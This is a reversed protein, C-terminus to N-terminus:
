TMNKFYGDLLLKFTIIKLSTPVKNLYFLTQSKEINKPYKNKRAVEHINM